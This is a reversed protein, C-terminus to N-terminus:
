KCVISFLRYRLGHDMQQTQVDAVDREPLKDCKGGESKMFIDLARGVEEDDYFTSPASLEFLCKYHRPYSDYTFARYCAYGKSLEQSQRSICGSLVMLSVATLVLIMRPISAIAGCRSTNAKKRM